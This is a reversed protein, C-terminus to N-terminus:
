TLLATSRCLTELEAQAQHAKSYLIDFDTYPQVPASSMSQIGYLGSLNHKFTKSCVENNTSRSEENSPAIPIAAFAPARSLMLLILATTRLFLSM